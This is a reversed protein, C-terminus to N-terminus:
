ASPLAAHLQAKFNGYSFTRARALIAQRDWTRLLATELAAALASPDNPPVLLGSEPSIVEPVGGANAGVCPRGKAMAELFVLGFGEGTSPLAFVSCERLSKELDVDSVHGPMEVASNLNNKEALRRLRRMDDGQGIIRLRAGPLRERLRAMAEILVDIGKYADSRCLRSVTLILPPSGPETAHAPIQFQCDLGNHLVLMKSAPLGCVERLRRRTYDSVCLVRRVRRLALRQPLSPKEWVEIGHAVLDYSLRPNLLSMLLAVPLLHLHGCVVHDHRHAWRLARRIFRGRHGSSVAWTALTANTHRRLESSDVLADGLSLFSFSSDPAPLESLALAYLRLIRPIGGNSTFLEPALLLTRMSRTKQWLCQHAHGSELHAVM